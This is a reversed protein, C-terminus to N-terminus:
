NPLPKEGSCSSMTTHLPERGPIEESEENLRVAVDVSPCEKSAVKGKSQHHYGDEAGRAHGGFNSITEPSM